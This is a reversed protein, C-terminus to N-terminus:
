YNKHRNFINQETKHKYLLNDALAIFVWFYTTTNPIFFMNDSFNMVLFAISSALFGTFFAKYYNDQTLNLLKKLKILSSVLIGIFAILGFIGLESAVKLYSNHSPFHSYDAYKLEPYKNVYTDYLTVYNGNGVGTFPHDKFMKIATQWLKIRDSNSSTSLASILRSSIQPVFLTVVGIGGLGILVKWSYIVALVICGILVGIWANRSYTAFIDFLIVLILGIYILKKKNIKEKLMLMISPFLGIVLFAGLNNPNELTAAIRDRVVSNGYQYVFKHDLGFGTFYQILSIISIFAVIFIYSDIIGNINEKSKIFYKIIFYLIIYSLFRLSESLALRKDVAYSVSILMILFLITLFIGMYDKLFDKIYTIFKRRNAKDMIVCLLFLSFIIALLLNPVLHVYKISIQSPILPLLIIYGCILLYLLKEILQM